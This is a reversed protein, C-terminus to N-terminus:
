RSCHQYNAAINSSDSLGNHAGNNENKKTRSNDKDGSPREAQSIDNSKPSRMLKGTSHNQNGLGLVKNFKGLQLVFGKDM